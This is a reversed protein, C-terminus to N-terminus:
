EMGNGKIRDYWVYSLPTSYHTCNQYESFLTCFTSIHPPFITAKIHLYSIRKLENIWSPTVHIQLGLCTKMPKCIYRILRLIRIIIFKILKCSKTICKVQYPCHLSHGERFFSFFSFFGFTHFKGQCSLYFSLCILITTNEHTNM